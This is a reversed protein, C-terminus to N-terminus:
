IEWIHELMMLNWSIAYLKDKPRLFGTISYATFRDQEALASGKWRILFDTRVLLQMSYRRRQSFMDLYWFYRRLSTMLAVRVGAAGIRWSYWTAVDAAFDGSPALIQRWCSRALRKMAYAADELYGMHPNGSIPTGRFWGDTSLKGSHVIWKPSGWKCFGVASDDPCRDWRHLKYCAKGHWSLGSDGACWLNHHSMEAYQLM